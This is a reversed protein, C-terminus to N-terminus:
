LKITMANNARKACEAELASVMSSIQAEAEPSEGFREIVDKAKAAISERKLRIREERQRSREEKEEIEILRPIYQQRFEWEDSGEPLRRSARARTDVRKAVVIDVFDEHSLERYKNAPGIVVTVHAGDGTIGFDELTKADSLVEGDSSSLGLRYALVDLNAALM